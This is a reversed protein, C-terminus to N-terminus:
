VRYIKLFLNCGEAVMSGNPSNSGDANIADGPLICCGAGAHVAHFNLTLEDPHSVKHKAAGQILPSPDAVLSEECM